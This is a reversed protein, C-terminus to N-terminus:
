DVKELESGPVKYRGGWEGVEEGSRLDRNFSVGVNKRYTETVTGKFTQGDKVYTVEDGEQFRNAARKSRRGREDKVADFIRGADWEDDPLTRISELVDTLTPNNDSM